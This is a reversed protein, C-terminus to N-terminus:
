GKLATRIADAHLALTRDEKVREVAYMVTTHDRNGFLRGVAPYSLPTLEYTLAMAIQRPQASVRARRRSTFEVLSYVRHPYIYGSNPYSFHEAVAVKIQDTLAVAAAESYVHTPTV